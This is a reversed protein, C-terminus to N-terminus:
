AVAELLKRVVRSPRRAGMVAGMVAIGHAGAALAAPANSADIGGLAFVPVHHGAFASAPLPPQRMHKSRSEAFPSLMVWSAGEAEAHRVDTVSHCSRGWPGEVPMATSSLHVGVCHPLPRRAAIVIAGAVTLREALRARDTEGLDLERLVVHTLGQSVCDTVVDVLNRRRPLHHRDTLVLLRPLDIM